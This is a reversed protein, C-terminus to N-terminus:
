INEKSESNKCKKQLPGLAYNELGDTDQINVNVARQKQKTRRM